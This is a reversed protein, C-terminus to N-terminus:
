LDTLPQNSQSNVHFPETKITRSAANAQVTHFHAGIQAICHIPVVQPPHPLLDGTAEERLPIIPGCYPGLKSHQINIINLHNLIM